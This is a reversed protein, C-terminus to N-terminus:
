FWTVLGQRFNVPTPPRPPSPCWDLVTPKGPALIQRYSQLKGTSACGVCDPPPHRLLTSNFSGLIKPLILRTRLLLLELLVPNPHFFQASTLAPYPDASSFPRHLISLISVCPLVPLVCRMFLHAQSIYKFFVSYLAHISSAYICRMLIHLEHISTVCSSSLFRSM